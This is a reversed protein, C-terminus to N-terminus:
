LIEIDRVGIVEEAETGDDAMRLGCFTVKAMGKYDTSALTIEAQAIGDVSSVPFEETQIVFVDGNEPDASIRCRYNEYSPYSVSVVLVDGSKLKNGGYDKVYVNIMDNEEVPVDYCTVAPEYCTVMPGPGECSAASLMAWATLMIGGLKYKYRIAKASRGNSLFAWLSVGLFAAGAVIYVIFYHVKM